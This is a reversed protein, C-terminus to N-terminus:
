QASANLKLTAARADNYRDICANLDIIANDGDFAIGELDAAAEPALEARTEAPQGAAAPDAAPAATCAAVRVPVSVRVTGDRLAAIRREHDEKAHTLDKQHQADREALRESLQEGARFVRQNAALLDSSAQARDLSREAEVRSAGRGDGIHFSIATWALALLVAGAIRLLDTSM